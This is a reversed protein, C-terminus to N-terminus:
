TRKVFVRRSSVDEWDVFPFVGIKYNTDYGMQFTLTINGPDEINYGNQNAIKYDNDLYESLTSLLNIFDISLTCVVYLNKYSSMREAFNM